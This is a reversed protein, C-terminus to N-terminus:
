EPEVQLLNMIHATADGSSTVHWYARSEAKLLVNFFLSSWTARVRRKESKKQFGVQKINEAFRTFKYKEFKMEM